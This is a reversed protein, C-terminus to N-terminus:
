HRPALNQSRTTRGCGACSARAEEAQREVNLAVLRSLLEEEAAEQAQTKHPSPLTAGPRGVIAEGLDAWGYSEFALRDIEDHMDKLVSVLGAEYIARKKDTLPPITPTTDEADPEGGGRTPGHRPLDALRLRAPHPVQM